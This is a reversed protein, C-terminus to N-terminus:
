PFWLNLQEYGEIVEDWQQPTGWTTIGEWLRSLIVFCFTGTFERPFSGRKRHRPLVTNIKWRYSLILMAKEKTQYIHVKVQATSQWSEPDPAVSPSPHCMWQWLSETRRMDPGYDSLCSRVQSPCPGWCPLQQWNPSISHRRQADM